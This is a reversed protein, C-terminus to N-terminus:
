KNKDYLREPRWRIHAVDEETRFDLEDNNDDYLYVSIKIKRKLIKKLLM